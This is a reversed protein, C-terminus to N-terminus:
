LGPATVDLFLNCRAMPWLARCIPRKGAKWYELYKYIKYHDGAVRIGGAPHRVFFDAESL